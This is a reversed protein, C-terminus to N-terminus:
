YIKLTLIDGKKFCLRKRLSLKLYQFIKDIAQMHKEKPDHMFQSVISIAYVNDPRTHSLYILKVEL